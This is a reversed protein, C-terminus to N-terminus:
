DEQPEGLILGAIQSRYLGAVRQLRTGLTNILRVQEKPNIGAVLGGPCSWTSTAALRLATEPNELDGKVAADLGLEQVIQEMLTVDHSYVYFVLSNNGADLKAAAEQALRRLLGAYQKTTTLDALREAAAALVTNIAEERAGTVVRLAELRARNVIRAQETRLPAQIAALHGQRVAVAEAQAEACIREIQAQTEQEIEGTQQEAEAELAQLINELPM